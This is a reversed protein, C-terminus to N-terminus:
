GAKSLKRKPKAPQPKPQSASKFEGRIKAWRKQQAEKMRRRAAASFRRRTPGPGEATSDKSGGALTGRLEAIQSDIQRKQEEFGQIAPHGRHHNRSDTTTDAHSDSHRGQGSYGM